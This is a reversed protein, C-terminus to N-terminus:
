KERGEKERGKENGIEKKRGKEQEHGTIKGQRHGLDNEQRISGPSERHGRGAQGSRNTYQGDSGRCVAQTIRNAGDNVYKGANEVPCLFCAM